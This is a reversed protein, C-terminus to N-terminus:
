TLSASTKGRARRWIEFRADSTSGMASVVKMHSFGDLAGLVDLLQDAGEAGGPIAVMQHREDTLVWFLDQAMPGRDTTVIDVSVLADLALVAGNDPGFYAIRGEDVTVVGPGGHRSRWGTLARELAGFLALCALIGIAMLVVGTWTGGAVLRWGHGVAAVGGVFLAAPLGWQRLFASAEPRIFSM